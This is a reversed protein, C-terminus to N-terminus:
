SRGVFTLVKVHVLEYIFLIVSCIIGLILIALAGYFHELELETPGHEDEFIPKPKQISQEYKWRMKRVNALDLKTWADVLGSDVAPHIIRDFNKLYLARKEMIVGVPFLLTVDKSYVMPNRGYVDSMNRANAYEAIGEHLICSYREASAKTLCEVEDPYLELKRFITSYVPDTSSKFTSYAAGRLYNLGIGFDSFALDHFTEPIEQTVPFAIASVLKARYATSTVMAFLLWFACFLKVPTYPFAVPGFRDQELLTALIYDITQILSSGKGTPYKTVVMFFAGVVLITALFCLWTLPGFPWFIAKWSYYTHPKASVFIFWEYTIPFSFGVHLNRHVTRGISFGLDARGYIIDSMAGVWTGNKLLQGTGRDGYSYNASYTFNYRAMAEDFWFKYAGRKPHYLEERWEIEFRWKSSPSVIRLVRGNLNLTFDPFLISTEPISFASVPITIVEPSGGTQCFFCVTRLEFSHEKESVIALKYKIRNGLESLLVVRELRRPVIFLYADTDIRTLPNHKGGNLLYLLTQSVTDYDTTQLMNIVVLSCQGIYRHVQHDREISVNSQLDIHYTGGYHAKDIVELASSPLHLGNSGDYVFFVECSQFHSVVVGTVFASVHKGLESSKCGEERSSAYNITLSLLVGICAFSCSSPRIYFFYIEM